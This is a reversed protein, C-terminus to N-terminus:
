GPSRLAKRYKKSSADMKVTNISKLYERYETLTELEEYRHNKMRRVKVGEKPVMPQYQGIANYHEFPIGWPDLRAHCDNCSRVHRHKELLEKISLAKEASEATDTLAPVEAPPEKVHDGLIADRLWVARYIPHPATGTSNGILVSGQTLLGGLNHEAKIPVPRLKHGEVGKVGYHAALRQNLFAFKSDVINLASYNKNILEGIFGVTEDLMYDRVTPIYPVEQGRREGADILYLFRPFLDKNIAVQKMKEISLWQLTFNRIFDRAREDQLM